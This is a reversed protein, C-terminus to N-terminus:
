CRPKNIYFRCPYWYLYWSKDRAEYTQRSPSPVQNSESKCATCTWEVKSAFLFRVKQRCLFNAFYRLCLWTPRDKHIYKTHKNSWKMDMTSTSGALTSPVRQTSAPMCITSQSEHHPWWPWFASTAFSWTKTYIGCWWSSHWSRDLPNSGLYLWRRFWFVTPM